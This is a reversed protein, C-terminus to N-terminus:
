VIATVEASRDPKAKSDIFIRVPEDFKRVRDSKAGVQLEAQFAIKFFGDKIEDNTFDHREAARRSAIDPDEARASTIACAFALLAFATVTTQSINKTMRRLSSFINERLRAASM